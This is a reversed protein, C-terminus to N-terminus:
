QMHVCEHDAVGVLKNALQLLAPKRCLLGLADGLGQALDVGARQGGFDVQLLQFDIEDLPHDARLQGVAGNDGADQDCNELRM